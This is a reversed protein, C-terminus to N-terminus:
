KFRCYYCRYEEKKIQSLIKEKQNGCVVCTLTKRHQSLYCSKHLRPIKRVTGCICRNKERQLERIPVLGIKKRLQHVRQRSVGFKQAVVSHGEEPHKLLYVEIPNVLPRM